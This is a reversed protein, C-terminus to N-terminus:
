SVTGGALPTYFDVAASYSVYNMGPYAEPEFHRRAVKDTEQGERQLFINCDIHSIQDSIGYPEQDFDLAPRADIRILTALHKWVRRVVAM